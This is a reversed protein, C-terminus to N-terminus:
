IQHGPSPVCIRDTVWWQGCSQRVRIDGLGGLYQMAKHPRGGTVAQIEVETGIQKLFMPAGPMRLGDHKLSCQTVAPGTLRPLLPSLVVQM